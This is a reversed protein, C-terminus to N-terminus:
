RPWAGVGGSLNYAKFGQDSLMQCASGSRNGSRCFVYYEKDKDLTKLASQFQSSTVDLNKAGKITGASFEGATRVDLLEAKPSNQFKSKFTKGDLNEYNKPASKFINFM